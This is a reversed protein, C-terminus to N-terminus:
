ALLGADHLVRKVAEQAIPHYGPAFRDFYRTALHRTDPQEALAKYLPRLYKMRGVEGLVQETRALAPGYGAEICRTLWAALIDFNTSTTLQFQADLQECQGRDLTKPLSEVYLQWEIPNWSQALDSPPQRGHLEEIAALRSSSILPANDPVGPAHLWKEAQVSALVGPLDAEAFDVFQETTIAQFRFRHLYRRLFQSFRDPGVAEEITRLFLCGKEYPVRSFADDPDVGSLHTRLLTLEPRQAFRALDEDLGRRGLAAHLAAADPGERAEVIKREAFVTFGENLWFHEASANSVLNGTWSHAMEHAVLALLSRDGALITPTVFILRPNEMGGYPFSRPLVLVDLRDWDYPGFLGEATSLMTELDALEWAAQEVIATEAWVGCRPGVSQFTLDGVALAFLYPPIPQPMEFREIAQGDRVERTLPAAAMVARLHGPVTLEARYVIRIRPTDQVPVLSRAHIAQCQSFLFPQQGGSTQAQSLWQLASAAPSTRYRLRVQETDAGLWIRLRSGLIPEAPFLEFRLPVGGGDTVSDIQLDRTDLDLPGLKPQGLTLLADAQITRTEFDVRAKWDLSQTEPQDTDNYSHPDTRPM